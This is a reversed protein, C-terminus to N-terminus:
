RPDIHSLYNVQIQDVSVNVKSTLSLADGVLNGDFYIEIKNLEELTLDRQVLVTYTTNAALGTLPGEVKVNKVDRKQGIINLYFSGIATSVNSGTRVKM